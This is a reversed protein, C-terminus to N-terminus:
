LNVGQKIKSIIIRRRVVNYIVTKTLAELTEEDIGEVAFESKYIGWSSNVFELCKEMPKKSSQFENYDYLVKTFFDVRECCSDITEGYLRVVEDYVGIDFQEIFSDECRSIDTEMVIIPWVINKKDLQIAADKKSGNAFIDNQWVRLLKQGLGPSTNANLNGIFDNIVQIVAKYREAEDDTEFPVVQVTFKQPDLPHNIEALYGEVIKRASPPLTSFQRRTPGWFVSRSADDNFPNPSNTILILQRADVKRAGESLSTLAKKLNERVHSFDSSSKVVAKAQALIKQDNELTVEIDEENGELRLSRLEKINELMLVIAANVQFDFGFMVAHARRNKM